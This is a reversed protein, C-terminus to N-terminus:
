RSTHLFSVAKHGMAAAVVLSQQMAERKTVQGEQEYWNIQFLYALTELHGSVAAHVM